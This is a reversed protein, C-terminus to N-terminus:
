LALQLHFVPAPAFGRSALFSLLDRQEWGVQTELREVRLARLNMELQRMLAEGVNKGRFRPAVGISDIVAVPEVRGFEGYHLHALVFGVVHDDVLAVLSPSLKADELARKVKVEYYEHRPRGMSERDIRVIADLDRAELTRVVITDTPLEGPDLDEM